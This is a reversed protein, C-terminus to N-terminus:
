VGVLVHLLAIVWRCSRGLRDHAGSHSVARSRCEAEVVGSRGGSVLDQQPFVVSWRQRVDAGDAAIFSGAHERQHGWFQRLLFSSSLLCLVFSPRRRPRLRLSHMLRARRATLYAQVDQGAREPGGVAHRQGLARGPPLRCCGMEACAASLRFAVRTLARTSALPQLRAYCRELARKCHKSLACM